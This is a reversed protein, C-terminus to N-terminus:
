ICRSLQPEHMLMEKRLTNVNWERVAGCLIMTPIRSDSSITWCEAVLPIPLCLKALSLRNDNSGKPAVLREATEYGIISHTPVAVTGVTFPLLVGCNDITCISLGNSRYVIILTRLVIIPVFPIRTALTTRRRLAPTTSTKDDVFYPFSHAAGKLMARRTCYVLNSDRVVVKDLYQSGSM